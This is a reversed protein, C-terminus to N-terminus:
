APQLLMLLIMAVLGAWSVWTVRTLWRALRVFKASTVESPQAVLEDAAAVVRKALPRQLFWVVSAAFMWLPIALQVWLRSFVSEDPHFFAAAIGLPGVALFAPESVLRRARVMSAVVAVRESPTRAVRVMLPYVFLPGFGVVVM